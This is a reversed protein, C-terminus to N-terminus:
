QIVLSAKEWSLQIKQKSISGLWGSVFHKKAPLISTSYVSILIIVAGVEPRGEKRCVLEQKRRRDGTMRPPFAWPFPLNVELQMFSNSSVLGKYSALGQLLGHFEGGAKGVKPEAELHLKIPYATYAQLTKKNLVRGTGRTMCMTKLWNGHRQVQYEVCGKEQGQLTSLYFM